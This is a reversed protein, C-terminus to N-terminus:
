EIPQVTVARADDQRLAVVAGRVRYAAPDGLPSKGLCEVWAGTLLGLEQLRRRMAGQSTVGLVRAREGPALQSLDLLSKM